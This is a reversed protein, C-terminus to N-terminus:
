QRVFLGLEAETYPAPRPEGPEYLVDLLAGRFDAKAELRALLAFLGLAMRNAFIWDKPLNVRFKGRNDRGRADILRRMFATTFQFSPERLVFEYTTLVMRHHSEFDYHAPDPIMDM